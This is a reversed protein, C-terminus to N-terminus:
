IKHFDCYYCVQLTQMSKEFNNAYTCYVKFFPALQIFAQPIGREEMHKVLEQNVAQISKVNEFILKHDPDPLLGLRQLPIM